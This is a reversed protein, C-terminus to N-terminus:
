TKQQAIPPRRGQSPRRKRGRMEKRCDENDEKKVRNGMGRGRKREKGEGVSCGCGQEDRM